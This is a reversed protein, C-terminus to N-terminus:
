ALPHSTWIIWWWSDSYGGTGNGDHALGEVGNAHDSNALVGAGQDSYGRVGADPGNGQVGVGQSSTNAGFLGACGPVMTLGLVGNGHPSGPQPQQAGQGTNEAFVADGSPDAAYFWQPNNM